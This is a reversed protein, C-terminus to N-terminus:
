TARAFQGDPGRKGARLRELTIAGPLKRLKALRHKTVSENVDIRASIDKTSLMEGDICYIASASNKAAGRLRSVNTEASTRYIM